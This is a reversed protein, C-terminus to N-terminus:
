FTFNTSLRLSLTFTTSTYKNHRLPVSSPLFSKSGNCVPVVSPSIANYNNIIQGISFWKFFDVLPVLFHAFIDALLDDAHENAIFQIHVGAPCDGSMFSFLYTLMGWHLQYIHFGMRLSKLWSQLSHLRSIQFDPPSPKSRSRLFSTSGALALAASATASGYFHPLINSM